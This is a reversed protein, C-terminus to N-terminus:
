RDIVDLIIARFMSTFQLVASRAGSSCPKITPQNFM